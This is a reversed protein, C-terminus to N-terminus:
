PKGVPMSSGRYRRLWRIALATVVAELNFMARSPYMLGLPEEHRRQQCRNWLRTKVGRPQCRDRTLRQEEGRVPHDRVPLGFPRRLRLLCCGQPSCGSTRFVECSNDTHSGTVSRESM